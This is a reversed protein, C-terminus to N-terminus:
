LSYFPCANQTSDIDSKSVLKMLESQGTREIDRLFNLTNTKLPNKLGMFIQERDIIQFEMVVLGEIRWRVDRIWMGGRNM